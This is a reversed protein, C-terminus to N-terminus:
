RSAIFPKLGHKMRAPRHLASAATMLVYELVSNEPRRPPVSYCPEAPQENELPSVSANLKHKVLIKFLVLSPTQLQGLKEKSEPCALVKGTGEHGRPAVGSDEQFIVWFVTQM